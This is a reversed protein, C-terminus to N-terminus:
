RRGSPRDHSRRVGPPAEPALPGAGITATGHEILAGYRTGRNDRYAPYVFWQYTRAHEGTPAPLQVQSDSPWLDIRTGDAILILDYYSAGAVAPWRLETVAPRLLRAPVDPRRRSEAGGGATPRPRVERAEPARPAGTPRPATVVPATVVPQPRRASTSPGQVVSLEPRSTTPFSLFALAPSLVIVGTVCWAVASVVGIRRPRPRTGKAVVDETERSDTQVRGDPQPPRVAPREVENGAGSAPQLPYAPAQPRAALCDHPEPLRKRALRALEDDVLALEPSITAM